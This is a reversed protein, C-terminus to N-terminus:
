KELLVAPREPQPVLVRLARPRIRMRLPSTLEVVEGDLATALRRWRRRDVVELTETAMSEFDRAQELRNLLIRGALRLVGGLGNARAMYVWLRGEDLAERRGLKLLEIQYRNNGVVLLPTAIRLTRDDARLTLRVVPMQRMAERLARAMAPWKREGQAQREERMQVAEPYLGISCNNVFVRGNVEGVDVAECHGAALVAAAEDVDSPLGIDRAFHNLTGLPLVGLPKASGALVTAACNVTGDGGAVIVADIEPSAAAAAVADPLAVPEVAHVPASLGAKRVAEEVRALAEPPQDSPPEGPNGGACVAGAGANVLVISRV